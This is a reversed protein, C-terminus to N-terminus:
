KAKRGKPKDANHLFKVGVLVAKPFFAAQNNVGLDDTRLVGLVELESETLRFWIQKLGLLAQWRKTKSMVCGRPNM